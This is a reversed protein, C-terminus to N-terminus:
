NEPPNYVFVDVIVESTDAHTLRVAAYRGASTKMCFYDGPNIADWDISLRDRYGTKSRCTAYDSKESGLSLTEGQYESFLVRGHYYYEIDVGSGRWQPDSPPSDLDIGPGGSAIVVQGSRRISPTPSSQPEATPGELGLQSRLASAEQQLQDNQQRLQDIESQLATLDNEASVQIREKAQNIQTAKLGLYAGALTVLATVVALIREALTWRRAGKSDSIPSM